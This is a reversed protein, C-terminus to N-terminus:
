NLFTALATAKGATIGTNTLGSGDGSYSTATLVGTVVAGSTNAQVRITGGGDKLSTADIGTLQSGDGYYTVIGSGVPGVTGGTGIRIGGGATVIGVSDVNTVDDYTLTGGISINEASLTKTTTNYTLDGTTGVETMSGTTQSTVVLRQDGTSANLTSGANTINTGDGVFATATIICSSNINGSTISGDVDLTTTPVTSGIGVRDNVSDITLSDGSSLNALNVAKSIAM